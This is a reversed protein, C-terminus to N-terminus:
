IGNNNGISSQEKNTKGLLVKFLNIDESLINIVRQRVKDEIISPLPRNGIYISEHKKLSDTIRELYPILEELRFPINMRKGLSDDEGKIQFTWGMAANAEAFNPNLKYARECNKIM